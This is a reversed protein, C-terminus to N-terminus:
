SHGFNVQLDNPLMRNRHLRGPSPEAPDSIPLVLGPRTRVETLDGLALMSIPSWLRVGM